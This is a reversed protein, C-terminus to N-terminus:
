WFVAVPLLYIPLYYTSVVLLLALLLSTTPLRLTDNLPSSWTISSIYSSLFFSVRSNPLPIRQGITAFTLFLPIINFLSLGLFFCLYFSPYDLGYHHSHVYLSFSSYLSDHQLINANKDRRTKQQEGCYVVWWWAMGTNTPMKNGKATKGMTGTTEQLDMDM